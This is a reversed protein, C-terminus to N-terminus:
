RKESNEGKGGERGGATGRDSDKRTEGREDRLRYIESVGEKGGGRKRNDKREQARM